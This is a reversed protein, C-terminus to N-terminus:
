KSRSGTASPTPEDTPERLPVTDLVEGIHDLARTLALPDGGFGIRFYGDMEFHDGPVVLVSKEDRLREVLATSGIKIRTASSRSPM